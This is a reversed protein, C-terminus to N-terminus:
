KDEKINLQYKRMIDEVTSEINYKTKVDDMDKNITLVSLNKYDNIYSELLRYSKIIKNNEKDLSLEFEKNHRKIAKKEIYEIFKENFVKVFEEPSIDVDNFKSLTNKIEDMDRCYINYSNYMFLINREWLLTRLERKYIYSKTGYFKEKNNTIGAKIKALKECEYYFKRDDDSIPEDIFKPKIDNGNENHEITVFQKKVMQISEFDILDLGSKKSLTNLCKELYYKICDDIKEFYEFMIDSNINLKECSKEQNYKMFSYNDNVMEFKRAWGLFPLTLKFDDEKELEQLKTLILPTLFKNLGKKLPLILDDKGLDYIKSINYKGQGMDQIECFKSAKNLLLQKDRGTIKKDKEYREKLKDTGFYDVFERTNIDGIKIKEM